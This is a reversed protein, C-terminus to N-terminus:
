IGVRYDHSITSQSAQAYLQTTSSNEHGLIQRISEMPINKNILHSGLWRRCGHMTIYTKDDLNAKHKINSFVLQLARSKVAEHPFKDSIFLSDCNKFETREKIYKELLRKTKITFYVIRQKDGKGIVTCSLDKFNCNSIKCNSM